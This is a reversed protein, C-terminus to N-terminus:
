FCCQTHPKTPKFWTKSSTRLSVAQVMRGYTLQLWQQYWQESWRLYRPLLHVSPKRITIAILAKCINTNNSNYNTNTYKRKMSAFYRGWYRCAIHSLTSRWCDDSPIMTSDQGSVLNASPSRNRSWEASSPATVHSCSTAAFASAFHIFFGVCHSQLYCYESLLGYCYVSVATATALTSVTNRRSIDGHLKQCFGDSSFM